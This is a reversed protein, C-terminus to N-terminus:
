DGSGSYCPFGTSGSRCGPPIGKAEGIGNMDVLEPIQYEKGVTEDTLVIKDKDEM